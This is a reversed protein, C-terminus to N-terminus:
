LGKASVPVAAVGSQAYTTKASSESEQEAVSWYFEIFKQVKTNKLNLRYMSAKGVNRTLIIWKECALEKKIKKLATYGVKSFRSIDRLSYDFEQHVILFDLVKNKVSTGEKKLFISVM